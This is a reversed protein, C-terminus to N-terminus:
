ETKPDMKMKVGARTEMWERQQQARFEPTGGRIAPMWSDEPLDYLPKRQCNFWGEDWDYVDALPRMLCQLVPRTCISLRRCELDSCERGLVIALRLRMAMCIAETKEPDAADNELPRVPPRPKRAKSRM